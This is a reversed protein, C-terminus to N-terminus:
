SSGGELATTPVVVVVVVRPAVLTTHTACKTLGIPRATRTTPTTVAVTERSTIM